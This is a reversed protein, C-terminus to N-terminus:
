MASAPPVVRAEGDLVLTDGVWAKTSLTVRPRESDVAIAEVRCRVSDGPRVPARFTLDQAVYISGPGPFETGIIASIFSATLMGHAVRQGFRTNAAYSDDFHIPNRDGSAVGFAEIAEDSAVFTRERYDGM